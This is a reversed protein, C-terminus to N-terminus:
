WDFIDRCCPNRKVKELIGMLEDKSIPSYPRIIVSQNYKQDYKDSIIVKEKLEPNKKFFDILYSETVVAIDGRGKIINLINGRHSNTYILNNKQPNGSTFGLFGYHFGNFLLINKTELDSFIENKSKGKNSDKQAIYKEGGSFLPRTQQFLISRENWGWVASEFFILDYEGNELDRYRREPSTEKIEFRYKKQVKNLNKVLRNLLGDKSDHLYFPPFNYAGVNVKVEAHISLSCLLILFNILFYRM